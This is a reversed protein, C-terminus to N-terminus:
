SAVKLLLSILKEAKESFTIYVLLIVVLIPCWKNSLAKVKGASEIYPKVEERFSKLDTKLGSVCNMVEDNQARLSRQLSDIADTHKRDNRDVKRDLEDLKMSLLKNSVVADLIERVLDKQNDVCELTKKRKDDTLDQM